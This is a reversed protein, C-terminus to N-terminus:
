AKAKGVMIPALHYVGAALSGTSQINQTDGGLAGQTISLQGAPKSFTTAFFNALNFSALPNTSFSVDCM